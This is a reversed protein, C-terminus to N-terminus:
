DAGGGQGAAGMREERQSFYAFKALLFQVDDSDTLHFMARSPKEGVTCGCFYYNETDVHPIGAEDVAVGSSNLAAGLLGAELAAAGGFAGGSGSGAPPTLGIAERSNVSPPLIWGSGAVGDEDVMSAGELDTLKRVTQFLDEDKTLFDGAVFVFGHREGPPLIRMSAAGNIERDARDEATANTLGDKTSSPSTPAADDEPKRNRNPDGAATSSPGSGDALGSGPSANLKVAGAAAPPPLRGVDLAASETALVAEGDGELVGGAPDQEQAAAAEQEQYLRMLIQSRSVDACRVEVSSSGVLVEAPTSLLPGAWLHILLDKSQISGHNVQGGKELQLGPALSWSISCATKHVVSGPTRDAFYEIIDEVAPLWDTDIEELVSCWENSRAPRWKVGGEAVLWLNPLSGLAHELAQQSVSSMVVIDVDGANSLIELSHLTTPSVRCSSLISPHYYQNRALLTGSFGLVLLKRNKAVRFAEVLGDAHMSLSTPVRLVDAVDGAQEKLLELEQQEHLLDQIWRTHTHTTCYTYGYSFREVRETQEMSLAEYIADAFGHTDWPNVTIATARLSQVSGAFESLILVGPDQARNKQCFIFEMAASALHDRLPTVLCVDALAYMPIFEEATFTQDLFHLPLDTFSGFQSSIEGAMQHIQSLLDNSQPQAAATRSVSGSKEWRAAANLAAANNHAAAAGGGGGVNYNYAAPGTSPSRPENGENPNGPYAADGAPGAYYDDRVQPVRLCLQLFVCTSHNWEDPHDRLLKSYALFKHPIGKTEQLFDVGLIVKRNGFRDRLQQLRQQCEESSLVKEYLDSDIGLPVAALKTESGLTDRCAEVVSRSCPSGLIRTCCTQFHRIYQFNFFAIIDSALVGRLLQERFPFVRYIESSPFVSHLFFGVFASPRARKILLPLMMLPYDHVWVSHIDHEDILALVQTAYISAVREYVQWDHEDLLLLDDQSLIYHFLSFLVSEVKEARMDDMSIERPGKSGRKAGGSSSAGRKGSAGGSQLQSSGGQPGGLGDLLSIPNGRVDTTCGQQYLSNPHFTSSTGMLSGGGPGLVPSLHGGGTTQKSTVQSASSLPQQHQPLFFSGAIDSVGTSQQHSPPNINVAPLPLMVAGTGGALGGVTASHVDPPQPTASQTGDGVGRNAFAAAFSKELSTTSTQLSSPSGSGGGPIEPPGLYAHAQVPLVSGLPASTGAVTPSLQGGAPSVGLGGGSAPTVGVAQEDEELFVPFFGHLSLFSRLTNREEESFSSRFSESIKKPCEPTEGPYVERVLPRGVRLIRCSFGATSGEAADELPVFGPYSRISADENVSGPGIAYAKNEQDYHVEIPLFKHVFVTVTLNPPRGADSAHGDFLQPQSSGAATTGVLMNPSTLDHEDAAPPALADGGMHLLARLADYTDPKRLRPWTVSNVALADTGPPGGASTAGGTVGAGSSGSQDWLQQSTGDGSGSRVGTGGQQLLQGQATAAQQLLMQQATQLQSAALNPDLVANAQQNLVAAVNNLVNGAGTGRQPNTRLAHRLLMARTGTRVRFPLPQDKSGASEVLMANQSDQISPYPATTGRRSTPTFPVAAGAATGGPTAIKQAQQSLSLSGGVVGVAGVGGPDTNALETRSRPRISSATPTLLELNNVRPQLGGESGQTGSRNRALGSLEAFSSSSSSSGTFMSLGEKSRSIPLQQRGAVSGALFSGSSGSGEKSSLLGGTYPGKTDRVGSSHETMTFSIDSHDREWVTKTGDQLPQQQVTIGGSARGSIQQSSGLASGPIGPAEKSITPSTVSSASASASSSLARFSSSSHKMQLNAAAGAGAATMIGSRTSNLGVSTSRLEQQQLQQAHHAEALIRARESPRFLAPNMYSHSASRSETPSGKALQVPAGGTPALTASSSRQDGPLPLHGGIKQERQHPQSSSASLDTGTLDVVAGQKHGVSTSSSSAIAKEKSGGNSDVQTHLLQKNHQIKKRLKVQMTEKASQIEEASIKDDVRLVPTQGYAYLPSPQGSPLPLSQGGFHAIGVPIGPEVVGDRSSNSQGAVGSGVIAAKAKDEPKISTPRNAKAFRYKPEPRPELERNRVTPTRGATLNELAQSAAKGAVQPGGGGGSPAGVVTTTGASAVSIRREGFVVSSGPVVVPQREKSQHGSSAQSSTASTNPPVNLAGGRLGGVGPDAGSSVSGGGGPSPGSAGRDVYYYSREKSGIGGAAAPALRLQPLNTEGPQAQLYKSLMANNLLASRAAQEQSTHSSSGHGADSSSASVSNGTHQLEPAGPGGPSSTSIRRAGGPTGSATAVVLGAATANAQQQAAQQLTGVLGKEATSIKNQLLIKRVAHHNNQHPSVIASPSKPKIAGKVLETSLGRVPYLPQSGSGSPPGSSSVPPSSSSCSSLGASGKSSHRSHDQKTATLVPTAGPSSLGAGIGPVEPLPLEDRAAGEDQSPAGRRKDAM